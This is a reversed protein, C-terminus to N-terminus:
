KLRESRCAAEIRGARERAQGVLGEVERWLDPAPGLGAEPALPLNIFVNWAAARVGADALVAAIALDSRLGRNTIPGLEELLRLLDACAGATARPANIAARAASPMESKRRQDGEPLRSLENVVAYAAADEEALGLLLARSAGLREAASRLAPEHEALSTKGVSYSVVMGGLAAALAGVISSVAGGGPIPTKAAIADLLDGVSARELNM